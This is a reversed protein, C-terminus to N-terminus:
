DRERQLNNFTEFRVKALEELPLPMHHRAALDLIVTRLQRLVCDFVNAVIRILRHSGAVRKKSRGKNAAKHWYWAAHPCQM